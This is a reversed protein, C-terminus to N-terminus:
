PGIAVLVVLPRHRRKASDSPCVDKRVVGPAPL